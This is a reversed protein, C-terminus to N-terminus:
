LTAATVVPKHAQLRTEAVSTFDFAEFIARYERAWRENCRYHATENASAGNTISTRRWARACKGAEPSDAREYGATAPIAPILM